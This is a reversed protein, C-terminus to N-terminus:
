DKNVVNMIAKVQAYEEPTDVSTMAEKSEPLHKEANIEKLFRQLSYHNQQFKELLLTATEKAYWALLPEYKGDNNYFAAALSKDKLNSIFDSLDKLTLFPYDCGVVLFDNDPYHQFATLLSAMPGINEYEPLDVLTKQKDFIASQAANCSIFVKECHRMLLNYVREAQPIGFYQLQSKDSGMRSSKGGCVALGYLAM